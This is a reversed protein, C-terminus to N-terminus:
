LQLGLEYAEKLINELEAEGQNTLIIAGIKTERNFAIITAVGQEGGDHGWLNFETDMIFMHLGTEEDLSPIQLKLMENVTASSLLQYGDSNGNLIFAKFFTHMDGATSRLGGNPYDTFTYHGIAEYDRSKYNYPQVITEDIEDLRWHTQNMSLSEFIQAKCFANFGIGSIEEVLVAILANGVNSYEVESGPEFDHFNESVSYNSGGSVLYSELFEKLDNPSDSGYFYEDDLASGDAIGSTHTLLMKFTIEKAYDPVNVDFSLFDNIHDDLEFKGEDYLRLLATATIVKSVSALMFPHNSNLDIDDELNAKGLYGEYLVNDERYIMVSVAPIHQSEMEELIYSEFDAANDIEPDDDKCSALTLIISISAIASLFLKM